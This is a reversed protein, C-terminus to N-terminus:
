LKKNQIFDKIESIERLPDKPRIKAFKFSMLEFQMNLTLFLFVLFPHAIHEFNVVIFVSRSCFCFM